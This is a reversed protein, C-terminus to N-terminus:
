PIAARQVYMFLGNNDTVSCFSAAPGTFLDGCASCCRAPGQQAAAGQQPQQRPQEEAAQKGEGAAATGKDDDLGKPLGDGPRLAVSLPEFM